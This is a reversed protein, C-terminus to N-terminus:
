LWHPVAFCHILSPRADQCEPRHRERSIAMTLRCVQTLHDIMTFTPKILPLTRSSVGAAVGVIGGVM